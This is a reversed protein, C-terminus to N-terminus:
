AETRSLDREPKAPQSRIREPDPAKEHEFTETTNPHTSRIPKSPTHELPRPHTRRTISTCMTADVTMEEADFTESVTGFSNVGPLSMDFSHGGMPRMLVLLVVRVHVECGCVAGVPSAAPEPQEDGPDTRGHQGSDHRQGHGAGRVGVRHDVRVLGAGVVPVVVGEPRVGRARDGHREARAPVVAGGPAVGAVEHGALAPGVAPAPGHRVRPREVRGPVGVERQVSPRRVRQDLVVDHVVPVREPRRPRQHPRDGTVATRVVNVLRRPVVRRRHLPGLGEVLVPAHPLRLPRTPGDGGAVM